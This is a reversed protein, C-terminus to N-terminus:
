SSIVDGSARLDRTIADGDPDADIAAHVLVSPKQLDLVLIATRSHPLIPKGGILSCQFFGHSDDLSFANRDETGVDGSARRGVSVHSSVNRSYLSLVRDFAREHALAACHEGGFSRHSGWLCRRPAGRLSKNM